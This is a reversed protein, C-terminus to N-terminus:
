IGISSYNEIAEVLTKEGQEVLAIFDFIKESWGAVFNTHTGEFQQTGYGVLDIGHIWFRPNVTSRYENALMQPVVGRRYYYGGAAWSNVNMENDSFVIMRDYVKGSNLAHVMPLSIDTGGGSRYTNFTNRLIGYKNSPHILKYDTDFILLDCQECIYPAMNLFLTAIEAATMTSHKSVQAGTMSGSVDAAVLSNGPIKEINELSLVAAKELADLVVPGYPHTTYNSAIEKYASYFRFPLQKSNKVNRPNTLFEVVPYMM